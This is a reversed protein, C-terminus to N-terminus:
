PADKRADYIANLAALLRPRRQTMPLGERLWAQRESEAVEAWAELDDPLISELAERLLGALAPAAGSTSVAITVPGRRVIGAAYATASAKDDVANVLLGRAEAAVAVQRNIEPPAAAVVFFAGDLDSPTFPREVLIAGHTGHARLAESIQPAIVTTAAGAARLAEYKAAAVPGAGVLVVKRSALKAFIPYLADGPTM